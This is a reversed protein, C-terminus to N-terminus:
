DDQKFKILNDMHFKLLDTEPPQYGFQKIWEHNLAEEATMRAAIDVNLCQSM